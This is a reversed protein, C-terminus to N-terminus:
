SATQNLAFRCPQLAASSPFIGSTIDLLSGILLRRPARSGPEVVIRFENQYAYKSRKRFRGVEGSDEDADYYDVLSYELNSVGNNSHETALVVPTNYETVNTVMVFAEGFKVVASSALEVMEGDGPMPPAVMCYVDCSKTRNLTIRVPGALDSPQAIIQGLGLSGTDFILKEVHKPQILNTTGEFRDGRGTESEELEAFEALPRMYLLGENRFERLDQKRGFKLFTFIPRHNIQRM